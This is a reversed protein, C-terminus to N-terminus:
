GGAKAGPCPRPYHGAHHRAHDGLWGSELCGWDPVAPFSCPHRLMNQSPVAQNSAQAGQQCSPVCLSSCCDWGDERSVQGDKMTTHVAVPM